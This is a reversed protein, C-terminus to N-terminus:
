GPTDQAEALLPLLEEKRMDGLAKGEPLVLRRPPAGERSALVKLPARDGAEDGPTVAEPSRVRRMSWIEGEPGSIQRIDPHRALSELEEKKIRSPDTASPLERTMWDNPNEPDQLLLVANGSDAEPDPDATGAPKAGATHPGTHGGADTVQWNWTGSSISIRSQDM